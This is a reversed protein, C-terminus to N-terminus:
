LANACEYQERRISTQQSSNFGFYEQANYFCIDRILRGIFPIDQPVDGAEMETGLFNCLIRRFYEHRVFSLLSRSDTTMGIFRGLLGSSSLSKLHSILGDKNDCFWWAPGYQIKGPCSGDMFTNVINALLDNDRPNINYMVTKALQGSQDLDNFYTCLSEAIPYDGMCDGGADPGIQGLLATRVNRLVGCHLQQVWNRKHNMKSLELAVAYQYVPIEQKSVPNGSRLCEFISKIRSATFQGTPIITYASDAVRCGQAHFFEHRMDLAEIMAEFSRISISTSESLLDLYRNFQGPNQIAMVKDARFSPLVAIEFGDDRLKAHYALSDIPDDTTCVTKVKMFRLLNRASFSEEKLKENCAGYIATATDESLLTDIGFYRQLELHAWDYLPNRIARSLTSSWRLFKEFDSASGTISNEDAGNARILRWKYHDGGLWLQTITDFKEDEAISKPSLHCHYDLIPMSEAYSHFLTEATKNHLLFNNSMYSM